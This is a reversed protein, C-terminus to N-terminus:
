LVTAACMFYFCKISHYSSIAFIVDATDVCIGFNGKEFFTKVLSHLRSFSFNDYM